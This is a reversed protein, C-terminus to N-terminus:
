GAARRRATRAAPEAAEPRGPYRMTVEVDADAALAARYGAGVALPRVYWTSARAPMPALDHVVGGADGLPVVFDQTTRRLGRGLAKVYAEKRVWCDFFATRRDRRPCAISRPSSRPRSSRERWKEGTSTAAFTRSTSASRRAGRSPSSRSRARRSLRQLTAMRAPRRRRGGPPGRTRIRHGRRFASRRPLESLVEHLLARTRARVSRDPDHPFRAVGCTSLSPVDAPADADPCVHASRARSTSARSDHPPDPGRRTRWRFHATHVKGDALAVQLDRCGTWTPMTSWRFRVLGHRPNAHLQADVPEHPCRARQREPLRRRGVDRGQGRDQGCTDPVPDARQARTPAHQRPPEARATAMHVPAPPRERHRHSRRM